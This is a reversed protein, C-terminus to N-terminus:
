HVQYHKKQYESPTVGVLNKFVRNFSSKSPFGAEYGIALVKYHEFKPDRMLQKARDVRYLNIFNNFNKQFCVNLVESFFHPTMGLTKAFSSQKIEHNLYPKEQEMFDLIRDMHKKQEEPSISSKKPKKKVSNNDPTNEKIHKAFTNLKDRLAENENELLLKSESLQFSERIVKKRKNWYLISCILFVIILIAGIFIYVKKEKSLFVISKQQKDIIKSKAESEKEIKLRQANSLTKLYKDRTETYLKQEELSNKIRDLSEYVKALYQHSDMKIKLFNGSSAIAKVEKLLSLAKTLNKLEFYSVAMSFKALAESEVSEKETIRDLAEQSNQIAEQYRGLNRLCDSINIFTRIVYDKREMKIALDKSTYMYELAESFKKQHLASTGLISYAVTLTQDPNEQYEALELIKIMTKDAMEYDGIAIYLNGLNASVLIQLFSTEPISKKLEEAELYTSLSKQYQDTQQYYIAINVLSRIQVELLNNTTAIALVIDSYKKFAELDGARYAAASLEKYKIISDQTAPNQADNNQINTFTSAFFTNVCLFIFICFRTKM